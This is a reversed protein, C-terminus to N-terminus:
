GAHVVQASAGIVEDAVAMQCVRRPVEDSRVEFVKAIQLKHSCGQTAAPEAIDPALDVDTVPSCRAMNAGARRRMSKALRGIRSM